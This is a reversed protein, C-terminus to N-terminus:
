INCKRILKIYKKIETRETAVYNSEVFSILIREVYLGGMKKEASADVFHKARGGYFNLKRQRV